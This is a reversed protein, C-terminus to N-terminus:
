NCGQIEIGAPRHPTHAAKASARESCDSIERQQLPWGRATRGCRWWGTNTRRRRQRGCGAAGEAVFSAQRGTTGPSPVLVRVVRRPIWASSCGHLSKMRRRNLVSMGSLLYVARRCKTAGDGDALASRRGVDYIACGTAM